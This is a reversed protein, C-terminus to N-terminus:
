CENCNADSQALMEITNQCTVSSAEERKQPFFRHLDITSCRTVDCFAILKNSSHLWNDRRM